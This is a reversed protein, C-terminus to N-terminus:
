DNLIHMTYGELQPFRRLTFPTPELIDVKLDGENDREQRVLHWHTLGRSDENIVAIGVDAADDYLPKYHTIRLSSHEAIFMKNHAVHTFHKVSHPTQHLIM